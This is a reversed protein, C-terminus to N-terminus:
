WILHMTTTFYLQLVGVQDTIIIRLLFIYIVFSDLNHVLNARGIYFKDYGTNSNQRVFERNLCHMLHEQWQHVVQIHLIIDQHCNVSTPLHLLNKLIIIIDFYCLIKQHISAFWATM